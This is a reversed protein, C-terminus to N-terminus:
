SPNLLMLDGLIIRRSSQHHFQEVQQMIYKRGDDGTCRDFISQYSREAEAVDHKEWAVSLIYCAGQAISRVISTFIERQYDDTVQPFRQFLALMAIRDRQVEPDLISIFLSIMVGFSAVAHPLLICRLPRVQNSGEESKSVGMLMKAYHEIIGLGNVIEENRRKSPSIRGFNMTDFLDEIPQGPHKRFGGIDFGIQQYLQIRVDGMRSKNVEKINAEVYRRVMERAQYPLQHVNKEHALSSVSSSKHDFWINIAMCTDSSEVRHWWGEPIFIAEGAAVSVVINDKSANSFPGYSTDYSFHENLLQGGTQKCRLLYPHNAHSSHVPSGRVSGPPSLEVTKVGHVVMLLNHHGDYHTNTQCEEPSMWFNIEQIDVRGDTPLLLSPVRIWPLLSALPSSSVTQTASTSDDVTIRGISDIKAISKSEECSYINVQAICSRLADASSTTRMMVDILQETTTLQDEQGLFLNQEDGIHFPAVSLMSDVIHLNHRTREENTADDVEEEGCLLEGCLRCPPVERRKAQVTINASLAKRPMSEVLQSFPKTLEDRENLFSGANDGKQRLEAWKIIKLPESRHLYEEFLNWVDDKGGDGAVERRTQQTYFDGDEGVDGPRQYRRTPVRSIREGAPDLVDINSCGGQYRTNTINRKFVDDDSM